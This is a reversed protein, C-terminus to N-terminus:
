KATYTGTFNGNLDNGAVTNTLVGGGTGTVRSLLKAVLKGPLPANYVGWKNNTITSNAVRTLGSNHIGWTNNAILCNDVNVQSPLGGTSIGMGNGSLVSSGITTYSFGAATLLGAECHELRSREISVQAQLKGTGGVVALGYMCERIFTDNVFLQGLTGPAFVIGQRTFGAIVCAEVYLASVSFPKDTESSTQPNNLTIGQGGKSVGLITLARLVITM